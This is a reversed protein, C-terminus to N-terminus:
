AAVKWVGETEIALIEDIVLDEVAVWGHIECEQDSNFRVYDGKPSMENDGLIAQYRIIRTGMRESIDQDQKFHVIVRTPQDFAIMENM